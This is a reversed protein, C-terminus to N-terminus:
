AHKDCGLRLWVDDTIVRERYTGDHWAARRCPEHTAQGGVLRHGDDQESTQRDINTVLASM